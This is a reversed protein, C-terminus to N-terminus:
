LPFANKLKPDKLLDLADSVVATEKGAYPTSSFKAVRNFGAVQCLELARYDQLEKLKEATIEGSKFALMEQSTNALHIVEKFRPINVQIQDDNLIDSTLAAPANPNRCHFGNFSDLARADVALLVLPLALSWHSGKKSTMDM